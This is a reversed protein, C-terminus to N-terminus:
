DGRFQAKRKELFANLGEKVDATASILGFLIQEVALGEGLGAGAGRNVAELAYRVAVPGNELIRAALDKAGPLLEEPPYVRNVLGIRHAEAADIMSGTLIMELARGEGVLRPLRLTGGYGPIIGLTVEPLGLKAKESAVRINCALAVELGGGLAFGNVAGIVPAGCREIADCMAQGRASVEKASTPTMEVLEAIDAGAVFAKEGSGTLIVVGTGDPLNTFAHTLEGITEANLANLKDPRNVTVTTLGDETSVIINRYDM